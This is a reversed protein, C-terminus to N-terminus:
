KPLEVTLTGKPQIEVSKGWFKIKPNIAGHFRFAPSEAHFASVPPHHSVQECLIRNNIKIPFHLNGVRVSYIDNVDMDVYFTFLDSLISYLSSIKNSM